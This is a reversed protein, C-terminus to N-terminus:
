IKTMTFEVPVSKSIVEYVPSYMALTTLTDMDADSKVRMNVRIQRYGKDVKDSIGFFGRADMDGESFTEVAELHIGQVAAHYVLTVTLCSDLAHLLQEVPNPATNQGGLFVPQDSEVYLPEKRDTNEKGGAFFGQITSRSRAGNIWQNSARFKFKGYDEDQSIKTALAVVGETDVGNITPNIQEATNM